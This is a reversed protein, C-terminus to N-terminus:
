PIKEGGSSVITVHDDTGRKFFCHTGRYPFSIFLMTSIELVASHKGCM